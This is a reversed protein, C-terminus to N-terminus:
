KGIKLLSSLSVLKLLRAGPMSLLSAKGDKSFALWKVLQARLAIKRSMLTDRRLAVRSIESPLLSIVKKMEEKNDLSVQDLVKIAEDLKKEAKDYEDLVEQRRELALSAAEEQVQAKKKGEIGKKIQAVRERERPAVVLRALETKKQEAMQQEQASEVAQQASTCYILSPNVTGSAISAGVAEEASKPVTLEQRAARQKESIHESKGSSAQAEKLDENYFSWVFKSTEKVTQPQESQAQSQVSELVIQGKESSDAANKVEELKMANKVYKAANEYGWAFSAAYIANQAGPTLTSVFDSVGKKRFVTEIEGKPFSIQETLVQPQASDEAAKKKQKVNKLSGEEEEEKEQKQAYSQFVFM